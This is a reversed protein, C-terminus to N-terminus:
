FSVMVTKAAKSLQSEIAEIIGEHSISPPIVVVISEPTKQKVTNAKHEGDLPWKGCRADYRQKCEIQYKCKPHADCCKFLQELTYPYSPNYERLLGLGKSIRPMSVKHRKYKKTLMM